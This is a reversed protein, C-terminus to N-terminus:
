KQKGLTHMFHEKSYSLFNIAMYFNKQMIELNLISNSDIQYLMQNFKIQNNKNSILTDTTIPQCVYSEYAYHSYFHHHFERLIREITNSQKGQFIVMAKIRILLFIKRSITLVHRQLNECEFVFRKVNTKFLYEMYTCRLIKKLSLICWTYILIENLIRLIHLVNIQKAFNGNNNIIRDTMLSAM